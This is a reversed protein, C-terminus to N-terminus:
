LLINYPTRKEPGAIRRASLSIQLLFYFVFALLGTIFINSVPLSFFKFSINDFYHYFISFSFTGTGTLFLLVFISTVILSIFVWGKWSIISTALPFKSEKPSLNNIKHMVSPIFEDGPKELSAIKVAQKVFDDTNNKDMSM